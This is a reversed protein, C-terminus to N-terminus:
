RRDFIDNVHKIFADRDGMNPRGVHIPESFSPKAGNLALDSAAYIKKQKEM